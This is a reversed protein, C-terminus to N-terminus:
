NRQCLNKNIFITSYYKKLLKKVIQFRIENEYCIYKNNIAQHYENSVWGKLKIDLSNIFNVDQHAKIILSRWSNQKEEFRKKSQKNLYYNADQRMECKFYKKNWKKLIKMNDTDVLYIYNTDFEIQTYKQWHDSIRYTQCESYFSISNERNYPSPEFNNELILQVIEGDLQRIYDCYIWDKTKYLEKINM